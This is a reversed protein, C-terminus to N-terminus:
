EVSFDMLEVPLGDMSNITVKCRTADLNGLKFGCSAAAGMGTATFTATSAFPGTTAPPTCTAGGGITLPTLVSYPPTAAVMPLGKYIKKVQNSTGVTGVVTMVTVIAFTTCPQAGAPQSAMPGITGLAFAMAVALLCAKRACM